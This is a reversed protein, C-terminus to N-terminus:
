RHAFVIEEYAVGRLGRLRAAKRLATRERIATVVDAANGKGDPLRAFLAELDEAPWPAAVAIVTETGPRRDLALWREGDPVWHRRAGRVPNGEGTFRPNPFLVTADGSSDVQVAYLWCDLNTELALRYRDDPGLETVNGADAGAADTSRDRLSLRLTLERRAEAAPGDAGDRAFLRRLAGDDGALSAFEGRRVDDALRAVRDRAVYRLGIWGVVLMAAAAIVAARRWGRRGGPDAGLV